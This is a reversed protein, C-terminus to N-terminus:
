FLGGNYKFQVIVFILISATLGTALVFLSVAVAELLAVMGSLLLTAGLAFMGKAFARAYRAKDAAKINRQHYDHILQTNGRYISVGLVFAAIAVILLILFYVFM